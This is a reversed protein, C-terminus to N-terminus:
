IVSWSWCLDTTEIRSSLKLDLKIEAASMRIKFSIQVRTPFVVNNGGGAVLPELEQAAWEQDSDSTMLTNRRSVSLVGPRAVCGPKTQRVIKERVMKGSLSAAFFVIEL